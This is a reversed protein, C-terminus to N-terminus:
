CKIEDYDKVTPKKPETNRYTVDMWNASSQLSNKVEYTVKTVLYDGTFDPM